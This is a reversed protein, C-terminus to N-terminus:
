LIVRGTAAHRDQIARAADRLGDIEDCREHYGLWRMYAGFETVGAAATVVISDGCDVCRHPGVASLIQTALDSLAAANQDAKQLARDTASPRPSATMSLIRHLDPVILKRRGSM